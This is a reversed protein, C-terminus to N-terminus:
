ELPVDKELGNRAEMRCHGDAGRRVPIGHRTRQRLERGAM